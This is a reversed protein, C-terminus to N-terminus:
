HTATDADKSFYCCYYLVGHAPMGFHDSKVQYGSLAELSRLTGVFVTAAFTSKQGGLNVPKKPCLTIKEDKWLLNQCFEDFVM